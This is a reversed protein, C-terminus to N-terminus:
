KLLLVSTIIESLKRFSICKNKNLEIGLIYANKKKELLNEPTLKSLFIKVDSLVNDEDIRWGANSLMDWNDSEAKGCYLFASGSCVASVTKSPVCIHVWTSLLSALHIDIFALESRSVFPTIIIGAIGALQDRIAIGKAGYLSLVLVQNEPNINKAVAILFDSSHAEGLNGCYGLIIKNKDYWSPRVLESHSPSNFIGCPLVISKVNNGFKNNIYKLQHEGLAILCDPVGSKVKEDIFRYILNSRTVLGAAAFAEPYLDMAWLVWFDRKSLLIAAWFQLMPPDTMVIHVNPKLKKSAWVLRFGEFANSILRLFPNKGNYFTFIRHVFGVEGACNSGGDYYSNVSLIIVEHGLSILYEALESASQGTIGNVPPYNRNLITIKLTKSM